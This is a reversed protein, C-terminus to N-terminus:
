RTVVKSLAEACHARAETCHARAETCHARRREARYQPRELRASHSCVSRRSASLAQIRTQFSSTTTDLWSSGM